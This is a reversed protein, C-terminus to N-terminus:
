RIREEQLSLGEPLYIRPRFIGYVFPTGEGAFRCTRYRRKGRGAEKEEAAEEKGLRAKKLRRNLWILSAASYALLAAMGLIWIRAALYLVMQLPNVSGSPNGQPLSGNVTRDVAESISQAPLQIEPAMQYGIDAPIYEMRGSAGTENQLAGLLSLPATFSVPCLLRFLVAAWLGYSFIRPAKKLLLRVALVVLIAVGATLSMNLVSIFFQELMQEM